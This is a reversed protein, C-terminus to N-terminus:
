LAFLFVSSLVLPDVVVFLQLSLSAIFSFIFSGKVGPVQEYFGSKQQGIREVGPKDSVRSYDWDSFRWGGSRLERLVPFRLLNLSVLQGL